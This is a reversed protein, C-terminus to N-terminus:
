NTTVLDLLLLFVYLYILIGTLDPEAVDNKSINWVRILTCSGIIDTRYYSWRSM